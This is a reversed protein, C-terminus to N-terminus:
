GQIGERNKRMRYQHVPWGMLVGRWYALLVDERVVRVRQGDRIAWGMEMGKKRWRWLTRISRRVRAAAERYTLLPVGDVDLHEAV